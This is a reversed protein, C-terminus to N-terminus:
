AGGHGAGATRGRWLLLVFTLVGTLSAGLLGAVTAPMLYVGTGPMGILSWCGTTSTSSMVSSAQCAFPAVVVYVVNYAIVALLPPWFILRHGRFPGLVLMAVGVVLFPQGISFQGLFGFVILALSTIWYAM